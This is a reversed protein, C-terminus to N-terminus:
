KSCIFCLDIQDDNNGNTNENLNVSKLAEKDDNSGKVKNYDSNKGALFAGNINDSYSSSSYNTTNRTINIIKNGDKTWWKIKNLGPLDFACEVNLDESLEMQRPNLSKAIRILTELVTDNEDAEFKITKTDNTTVGNSDVGNSESAKKENLETITKCKNCLFDGKPIQDLRLPPDHCLLHFSVPCRDCSSFCAFM